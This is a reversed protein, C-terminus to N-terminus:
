WEITTLQGDAVNTTVSKKYPGKVYFSPSGEDNIVNLVLIQMGLLENKHEYYQQSNNVVFGLIRLEKKLFDRSGDKEVYFRKEIYHDKYEGEFIKLWWVTVKRNMKDIIENLSMIECSYMGEPIEFNSNKM